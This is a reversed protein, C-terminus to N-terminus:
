RIVTIRKVIDGAETAIRVMYIGSDVHSMNIRTDDGDCEADYVMQGIANFVTVHKLNEGRVTFNDTAPNPYISVKGTEDEDIGDTSYYAVMYFQNQDYIWNAPSSLCDDLAQYCAYLKYYYDGEQNASNDTYSTASAGLVKVRQYNGDEGFKRYLYYGSLGDAPDPKEWKLKIKYNSGTYEYDLNTPPYCAGATACSENSYQGNEGGMSLFGVYYCHGGISANEDVFSTGDPILRHVLGDRYVIYGYGEDNVGDWSVNINTEIDSDVVAFLNTPVGTGPQSGCGNNGEYFVGEQMDSSSGNYTYVVNNQSDKITFTMDFAAGTTPATWCFSVMGLPVDVPIAQISSTTTTVQGIKTGAGNYIHIMGGRFGQFSAKSINVTWSCAPGFDIGSSYVNKGHNGDSIAYVAYVFRDFRPVENDVFTMAQGPTVDTTTHIIEGNRTVVIADIASLNSNNLSKTPNTWTLTASLEYNSAPTVTLNTPAQPTHNYVDLPVFNIIARMNSNYEIQDVVYYGNDTGGWGFNFHYMDNDDYGDCIFAHGGESSSGSYYVPWGMDFQERLMSKWQDVQSSNYALMNTQNTYGFYNYIAPMVDESYAGSGQDVNNGYMMDVSVGCHFGITAVALGQEPTYNGSGYVNLMNDWDYTTEGFNATITGYEPHGAYGPRPTCVYSHSGQGQTPYNWYKMLQSMATAVCGVYDHGGPGLPDAPCLDNYPAPNQNWKTQVLYNVGRGGNFSLLRGTNTVSQWEARVKPESANGKANNRGEVIANLYFAAEPAINDADFTGEESYGVIPRFVDDASVMVFGTEGVNFVYFCADGRNSTGTYVHTLESSQRAQDFNAQVFQQGVYKAQSMSVPNAFATGIGLALALMSMLYKKM